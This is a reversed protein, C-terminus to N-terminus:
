RPYPRAERHVTLLTALISHFEIWFHDTLQRPLESWRIEQLPLLNVKESWRAKLKQVELSTLTKAKSIPERGTSSFDDGRDSFVGDSSVDPLRVSTVGPQTEALPCNGFASLFIRVPVMPLMSARKLGHIIRM